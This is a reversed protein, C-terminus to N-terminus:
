IINPKDNQAQTPPPDEMLGWVCLARQKYWRVPVHGNAWRGEM